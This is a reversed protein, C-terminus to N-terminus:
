LLSCNVNMDYNIDTFLIRDQTQRDLWYLLRLLLQVVNHYPITINYIIVYTVRGLFNCFVDVFM